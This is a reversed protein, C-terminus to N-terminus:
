NVEQSKNTGSTDQSAQKVPSSIKVKVPSSPPTKVKKPSPSKDSESKNSTKPKAKAKAPKIDESKGEPRTRIMQLLDDESIQKIGLSSAQFNIEYLRINTIRSTYVSYTLM